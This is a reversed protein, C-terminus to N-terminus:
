APLPSRRRREEADARSNQEDWEITQETPVLSMASEDLMALAREPTLPRLAEREERVSAVEDRLNRAFFFGLAAAGGIALATGAFLAPHREVARVSGQATTSVTKAASSAAGQVSGVTSRAAERTSGFAAHASAATSQAAQSVATATEATQRSISRIRDQATSAGSQVASGARAANQTAATTMRRLWHFVAVYANEDAPQNRPAPRIALWAVAGALLTLPVSNSVFDAKLNRFFRAAASYRLGVGTEGLVRHPQARYRLEDFSSSLQRRTEQIERELRHTKAM